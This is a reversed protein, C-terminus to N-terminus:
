TGVPRFEGLCEVHSAGPIGDDAPTEVTKGPAQAM